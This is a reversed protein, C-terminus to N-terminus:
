TSMRPDPNRLPVRGDLIEVALVPRVHPPLAHCAGGSQSITIFQAKARDRQLKPL